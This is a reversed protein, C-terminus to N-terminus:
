ASVSFAWNNSGVNWFFGVKNAAINVSANASGNAITGGTAPYVQLTNVGHNVVIYSDTINVNISQPPLRGGANAAVTTFTVFDSPILTANAQSNSGAATLGTTPLGLSAQATLPSNGSGLLNTLTPM